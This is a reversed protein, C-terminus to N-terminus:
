SLKLGPFDLSMDMSELNVKASLEEVGKDAVDRCGSGSVNTM